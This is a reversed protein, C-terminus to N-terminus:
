GYDNLFRAMPMMQQAGSTIGHMLLVAKGNTGELFFQNNLKM